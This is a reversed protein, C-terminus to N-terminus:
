DVSQYLRKQDIFFTEVAEAGVEDIVTNDGLATREEPGAGEQPIELFVGSEDRLKITTKGETELVDVQVNRMERVEALKGKIM